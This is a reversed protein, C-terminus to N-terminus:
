HERSKKSLIIGKYIWLLVLVTVIILIILGYSLSPNVTATKVYTQQISSKITTLLIFSYMVIFSAKIEANKMLSKIIKTFDRVWRDKYNEALYCTTTKMKKEVKILGENEMETIVKHTYSYYSKTKRAIDGISIGPQEILLRTIEDKFKLNM